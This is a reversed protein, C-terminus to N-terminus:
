LALYVMWIAISETDTFTYIFNRTHITHVVVSIKNNNNQKNIAVVVFFLQAKDSTGKIIVTVLRM